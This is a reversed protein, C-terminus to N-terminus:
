RGERHKWVTKSNSYNASGLCLLLCASLSLLLYMVRHVCSGIKKDLPCPSERLIKRITWDKRRSLLMMWRCALISGGQLHFFCSLVRRKCPSLHRGSILRGPNAAADSRLCSDGAETVALSRCPQRAELTDERKSKLCPGWFITGGCGLQTSWSIIELCYVMTLTSGNVDNFTKSCQVTKVPCNFWILAHCRIWELLTTFNAVVSSQM